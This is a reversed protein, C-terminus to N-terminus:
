EEGGVPLAQGEIMPAGVKRLADELKPMDDGTITQLASRIEGLEAKAIEFTAKHTPTPGYTANNVGTSVAGLRSQVTPNNKEGIQQKSRNGNLQGDLDHLKKIVAALQSDLAGPESASRSLAVKMAAVKDMQQRLVANTAIAMAQTEALDKWFAAVTEPKDGELAGKRLREVQFSRPESLPTIQGDVEKAMSVSYTGPPMMVGNAQNPSRKDKLRMPMLSSSRLDWSVRHIGKSTPGELRRVVNGAADKVTLWIKPKSQTREAELADWGPFPIDQNDKALKQDAKKRDGAKTSLGDKLYYTFSAGFDPNKATYYAAGQNGKGNFGVGPRPIYWWAKRIGAFLTAEEKMQDASIERLPSYDDLIYFSRGFSAGVLDNERRQIALDRFSITPVGGQLKTWQKGADITFYIGFETAVFMLEPRVHDQVLRWVLTRDPLNGRMSQWSKGRN